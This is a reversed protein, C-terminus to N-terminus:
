DNNIYATNILSQRHFPIAQTVAMGKHLTVESLGPRLVGPINVTSFYRDSEVIGAFCQHHQQFHNLPPIYLNSYGHKLVPAWHGIMNIPTLPAFPHDNGVKRPDMVHFRGEDVASAQVTGNEDRRISVDVGLPIISGLNMAAQMWEVTPQDANIRTEQRMEDFYGDPIYEGAPKVQPIEGDFAEKCFFAQDTDSDLFSRPQAPDRGDTAEAPATTPTEGPTSRTQELAHKDTLVQFGPKKVWMDRRYFGTRADVTKSIRRQLQEQRSERGYSQIKPPDLRTERSIPILQALVDGREITMSNGTLVVPVSISKEYSDTDVLVSAPTFRTEVRNMPPAFLMSTGDPTDIEWGTEILCDPTPFSSNQKSQPGIPAIPTVIDSDEPADEVDVHLEGTSQDRTIHATVPSRVVWGITVADTFPMCLKVTSNRISNIGDAEASM